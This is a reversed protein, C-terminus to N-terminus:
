SEYIELLLPIAILPVAAVLPHIGNEKLIVFDHKPSPKSVLSSLAYLAHGIFDMKGYAMLFTGPEQFRTKMAKGVAMAIMSVSLSVMPGASAVICLSRKKGFKKGLETLEQTNYHTICEGFPDLSM